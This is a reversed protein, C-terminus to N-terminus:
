QMPFQTQAESTIWVMTPKSCQRDIDMIMLAKKCAIKEEASSETRILCLEQLGVLINKRQAKAITAVDQSPKTEIPKDRDSQVHVM